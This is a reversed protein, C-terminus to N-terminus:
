DRSELLITVPGDNLINVKMDSGFKGTEVHIFESLKKNFEDYLKIAKEGGLANIYSTTGFSRAWPYSEDGLRGKRGEDLKRWVCQNEQWNNLMGHLNRVM